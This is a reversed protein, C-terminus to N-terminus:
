VTAEVVVNTKNRTVTIKTRRGFTRRLNEAYYAAQLECLNDGFTEAVGGYYLDGVPILGESPARGRAESADTLGARESETLTRRRFGLMENDACRAVIPLVDRETSFRQGGKTAELMTNEAYEVGMDALAQRLCDEDTFIMSLEAIHSM